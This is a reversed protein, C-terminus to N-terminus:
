LTTGELALIKSEDGLFRARHSIIESAILDFDTVKRLRLGLLVERLGIVYQERRDGKFEDPCGLAAMIGDDPLSISKFHQLDCTSDNCVGGALEFRCFEKEADIKHSYTISRLGGSVENNFNPHFRYARFNKLPSEYPTFGKSLNSVTLPGEVLHQPVSAKEQPLIEMVKNEENAQESNVETKHGEKDGEISEPPAPSFPPSVVFPVELPATADPPEYNDSDGESGDCPSAQPSQGLSLEGEEMSSDAMEVTSLSLSPVSPENVVLNLTERHPHAEVRDQMAVQITIDATCSTYEKDEFKDVHLANLNAENPNSLLIRQNCNIAKILNRSQDAPVSLDLEGFEPSSSKSLSTDRHDLAPAEENALTGPYLKELNEKEVAQNDDPGLELLKIQDAMRQKEDLNKKLEAEIQAMEIRLQELRSQGQQLEAEVLPLENAIRERLLRKEEINKQSLENEKISKEISETNLNTNEPKPLAKMDGNLKQSIKQHALSNKASLINIPEVERPESAGTELRRPTGCSSITAKAKLQAEALAIRQKMLQIERQKQKLIIPTSLSPKSSTSPLQNTPIPSPTCLKLAPSNSSSQVNQTISSTKRSSNVSSLREVQSNSEMVVDEDESEDDSVEIVFRQENRTHGFPRKFPTTSQSSDDFDSAVPRKRLNTPNNQLPKTSTSNSTNSALFLGPITQPLSSIKANEPSLEKISSSNIIPETTSDNPAQLVSQTPSPVSKDTLTPISLPNGMNETQVTAQADSTTKSLETPILKEPAVQTSTKAVIKASARAERSKRLAEMKSQLTKEKEAMQSTKTSATFQGNPPDQLSTTPQKLSSSSKNSLQDSETASKTTKNTQNYALALDSASTKQLKLEEFIKDVLDRKFGEQIYTQYKLGHSWLNLVAKEAKKKSEDLSKGSKNLTQSTILKDKTPNQIVQHGNPSSNQALAQNATGDPTRGNIISSSTNLFPTIAKPQIISGNQQEFNPSIPSVQPSYSDSQQRPLESRINTVLYKLESSKQNQSDSTHKGTLSKTSVNTLQDKQSQHGFQPSLFSAAAHMAGHVGDIKGADHVNSNNAQFAQSNTIYAAQTVHHPPQMNNQFDFNNHFNFPPGNQPLYPQLQSVGQNQGQYLPLPLVGSTLNGNECFSATRFYNFANDDVHMFKNQYPPLYPLGTQNRADYNPNYTPVGPYEAM